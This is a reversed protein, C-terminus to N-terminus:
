RGAVPLERGGRDCLDAPLGCETLAAALSPQHKLIGKIGSMAFAEDVHPRLRALMVSGGGTQVRKALLLVAGLGASSVYDVDDLDLVIPLGHNLDLEKLWDDFELAAHGDIRGFIRIATGANTAFVELKLESM